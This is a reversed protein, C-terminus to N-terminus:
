FKHLHTLNTLKAVCNITLKNNCFINLHTLNTLETIGDDTIKNNCILHTLNILKKIGNDTILNNWKLNLHTLQTLERIDNDVIRKNDDLILRRLGNLEKLSKSTILKDYSLDLETLQTLLIIVDDTIKNNHRLKLSVLNPINIYKVLHENTMNYGSGYSLDLLLPEIKKMNTRVWANLIIDDNKYLQCKAIIGENKKIIKDDAIKVKHCDLCLVQINHVDNNELPKSYPIIYSIDCFIECNENNEIFTGDKGNEYLPCKFEETGVLHTDPNNNCKGNQNKIIKNITKQSIKIKM